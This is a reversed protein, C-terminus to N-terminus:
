TTAPYPSPAVGRGPPRRRQRGRQAPAPRSRSRRDRGPQLEAAARLPGLDTEELVERGIGRHPHLHGRRQALRQRAAARRSVPGPREDVPLHAVSVARARGEGAAGRLAHRQHDPGPQTTSPTAPPQLALEPALGVVQGAGVRQLAFGPAGLRQPPEGTLRGAVHQARELLSPAGREFSRPGGHVAPSARLRGWPAVEHLGEGRRSGPPLDEPLRREQAVVGKTGGKAITREAAKLAVAAATTDGKELAERVKKVASKVGTRVQVNRTRRKQAQRNRKQASVTNAM